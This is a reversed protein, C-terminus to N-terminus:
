QSKQREFYEGVRGENPFYLVLEDKEVRSQNKEGKKWIMLTRPIERETENGHLLLLHRVVGSLIM